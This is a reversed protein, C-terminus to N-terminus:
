DSTHEVHGQYKKRWNVSTVEHWIVWYGHDQKFQYEREVELERGRIVPAVYELGVWYLLAFGLLGFGITGTVWWHVPPVIGSNGSPQVWVAVLPFCNSVTFVLAASVSLYKNSKSKSSWHFSPTLRLVLIGLGIAFGFLTDVVFSYLSVFIRYSDDTNGPSTAGILIVTFTWHLFLAGAPTAAQRSGKPRLFGPIM